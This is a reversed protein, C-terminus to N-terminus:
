LALIELLSQICHHLFMDFIPPPLITPTYQKQEEISPTFSHIDLHNNSKITKIAVQIVMKEEDELQQTLQGKFVCGFAGPYALALFNVIM